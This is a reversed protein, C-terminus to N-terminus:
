NGRRGWLVCHILIGGDARTLATGQCRGLADRGAPAWLSAPCNEHGKCFSLPFIFFTWYLIGVTCVLEPLGVCVTLRTAPFKLAAVRSIPHCEAQVWGTSKRQGQSPYSAWGVSEAWKSSCLKELAQLAACTSGPFWVPCLQRTEAVTPLSTRVLTSTLLRPLTQGCLLARPLM